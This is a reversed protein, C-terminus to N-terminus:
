SKGYNKELQTLHYLLIGAAIAANLSESKGRGPINIRTDLLNEIEPRLGQAENGILLVIKGPAKYGPLPIGAESSAGVITFNKEKLLELERALNVNDRIPIHFLAGMTSRVTKPNYIEVSDESTIVGDSGFWEATRLITGLNGPDRISDLGLILRAATLDPAALKVSVIAAIGQPQRTDALATFQQDTAEFVELRRKEIAALLSTLRDTHEGSKNIIFYHITFDSRVLEECLRVGEVLFLKERERNKQLHLSRIFKFQNQSLSPM